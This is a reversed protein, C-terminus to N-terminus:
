LHYMTTTNVKKIAIWKEELGAAILESTVVEEFLGGLKKELICFTQTRMSPLDIASMQEELQADGGGTSIQGLVAGINVNIM